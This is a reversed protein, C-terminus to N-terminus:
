KKDGLNLSITARHELRPLANGKNLLAPNYAIRVPGIDKGLNIEGYGWQPGKGDTGAFDMTGFSNVSFGLPLSIDFFYQAEIKNMIKWENDVWLPALGVDAYVGKPLHPIKAKVGLGLQGFPEGSHNIIAKASIGKFVEKDLSTKGFYGKHNKYFEMFTFGNIKGLQYFLNPRAYSNENIESQIYEVSGKKIQANANKMPLLSALGLGFGATLNRLRKKM